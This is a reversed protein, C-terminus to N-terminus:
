SEQTVKSSPSTPRRACCRQSQLGGQDMELVARKRTGTPATQPNDASAPNEPQDGAGEGMERGGVGEWPLIQTYQSFDM